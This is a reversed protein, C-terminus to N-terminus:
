QLQLDVFLWQVEIGVQQRSASWCNHLRNHERTCSSHFSCKWLSSLFSQYLPSSPTFPIYFSRCGKSRQSTFTTAHDEATRDALLIVFM